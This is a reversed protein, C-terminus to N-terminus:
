LAQSVFPVVFKGKAQFRQYGPYFGEETREGRTNKGGREM